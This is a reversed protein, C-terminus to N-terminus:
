EHLIPYGVLSDNTRKAAHGSSGQISLIKRRDLGRAKPIDKFRDILSVSVVADDWKFVGEGTRYVLIVIEQLFILAVDDSLVETRHMKVKHSM